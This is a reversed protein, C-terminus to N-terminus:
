KHRMRMAAWTFGTLEILCAEQRREQVLCGCRSHSCSPDLAWGCPSSTATNPIHHGLKESLSQHKKPQCLDARSFFMQFPAKCLTVQRTPLRTEKKALFFCPAWWVLNWGEAGSSFDHHNVCPDAFDKFNKPMCPLNYNREYPFHKEKQATQYGPCLIGKWNEM